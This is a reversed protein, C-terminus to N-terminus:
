KMSLGSDDAAAISPHEEEGTNTAQSIDLMKRIEDLNGHQVAVPAACRAGTSRRRDVSFMTVTIIVNDYYAAANYVDAKISTPSSVLKRVWPEEGRLPTSRICFNSVWRSPVWFEFPRGKSGPAPGDIAMRTENAAVSKKWSSIEARGTWEGANKWLRERTKGTNATALM